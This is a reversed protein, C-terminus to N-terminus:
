MECKVSKLAKENRMRYESGNTHHQLYCIIKFPQKNNINDNREWGTELRGYM